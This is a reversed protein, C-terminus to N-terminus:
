QLKGGLAGTDERQKSSLTHHLEFLPFRNRRPSMPIFVILRIQGRNVNEWPGGAGAALARTRNPKSGSGKPMARDASMASAYAVLAQRIGWRDSSGQSVQLLLVLRPDLNLSFYCELVRLALVRSRRKHSLRIIWVRPDFCSALVKSCHTARIIGAGLHLLWSADVLCNM